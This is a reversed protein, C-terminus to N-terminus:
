PPKNPLTSTGWAHGVFQPMLGHVHPHLVGLMPLNPATEKDDESSPQCYHPSKGKDAFCRMQTQRCRRQWQRRQKGLPLAAAWCGQQFTHTNTAQQEGMVKM